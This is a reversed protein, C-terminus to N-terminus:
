QRDFFFSGGSGCATNGFVANGGFRNLTSDVTGATITRFCESTQRIDIINPSTLTGILIGPNIGSTGFANGPLLVVNWQGTLNRGTQVILLEHAVGEATAPRIWRGTLSTITLPLTATEETAGLRSRLTVQFSGVSHYVHTAPGGDHLATTGDGFDWTFESGTLTGGSFTFSFETVDVLGSSGFQATITLPTASEGLIRTAVVTGAAGAGGAIGVLATNSLGGGAGAGGTSTVSSGASTGAGAGATSGGIAAAEAATMVNTQAITAAVTQGQFVASVQIQYAGSTLPQLSSAAARGLVNTTITVTQAGGFTAPAATRGAINFTVVAGSVPLNNRDRVEVLPATATQQQVINVADEGALVLIRLGQPRAPQQAITVASVGLLLASVAILRPRRM